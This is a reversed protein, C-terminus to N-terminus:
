HQPAEDADEGTDLRKLEGGVATVRRRLEEMATRAVDIRVYIADDYETAHVVARDHLESVLAQTDDGYPLRVAYTVSPLLDDLATRAAAAEARDLSRYPVDFRGAVSELRAEHTRGVGLVCTAGELAAVLGPFVEELWRPLGDTGPVGPTDTVAVTHPGLATQATAPQAPLGVEATAAEGTLESWLPTTPATVGGLLVVTADVATHGTRVRRRATKQQQELRDQLTHIRKDSEAVRGSTGSPGETAADRQANAARRRALRADQLSIRAAAVPNSEAVREWVIRRKDVVTGSQLRARLDVLQGPHPVGDVVVLPEGNTGATRQAIQTITAPSLYHRGNEPRDTVLTSVPEYEQAAVLASLGATLRGSQSVILAPTSM